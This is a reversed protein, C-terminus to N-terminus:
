SGVETNVMSDISQSEVLVMQHLHEVVKILCVSVNSIMRVSAPVLVGETERNEVESTTLTITSSEHIPLAIQGVNTKHLMEDNM